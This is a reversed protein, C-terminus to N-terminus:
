FPLKFRTAFLCIVCPMLCRSCCQVHHRVGSVPGSDLTLWAANFTRVFGPGNASLPEALLQRVPRLSLLRVKPVDEIILRDPVDDWDPYLDKLKRRPPDRRLLGAMVAARAQAQEPTSGSPVDIVVPPLGPVLEICSQTPAAIAPADFPARPAFLDRHDAAADSQAGDPATCAHTQTADPQPDQAAEHSRDLDASGSHPGNLNLPPVPAAPSQSPPQELEPPWPQEPRPDNSAPLPAPPLQSNAPPVPNPEALASLEQSASQRSDLARPLGSGQVKDVSLEKDGLEGPQKGAEETAPALGVSSDPMSIAPM